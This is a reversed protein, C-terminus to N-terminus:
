RVRRLRVQGTDGAAQFSGSLQSGSVVTDMTYSGLIPGLKKSAVLHTDGHQDLAPQLEARYAFPIVGLFRGSFKAAYTGNGTPRIVAKMPGRHGTSGSNWEGRWVGVPDGARAGNECLGVLVVLFAILSYVARQRVVMFPITQSKM